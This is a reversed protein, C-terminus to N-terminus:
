PIPCDTEACDLVEHRQDVEVQGTAISGDALRVSLHGFGETLGHGDMVRLGACFDKQWDNMGKKSCNM